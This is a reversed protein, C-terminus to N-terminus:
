LDLDVSSPLSKESLCKSKRSSEANKMWYLRLSSRSRKISLSAGFSQRAGETSRLREVLEDVLM